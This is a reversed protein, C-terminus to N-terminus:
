LIWQSFFSHRCGGAPSDLDLCKFRRWKFLDRERERSLKLLIDWNIVKAMSCIWCNFV